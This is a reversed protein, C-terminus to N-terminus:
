NRYCNILEIKQTQIYRKLFVFLCVCFCSSMNLQQAVLFSFFIGESQVWNALFMLKPSHLGYQPIKKVRPINVGTFLQSLFSVATMRASKKDRYIVLSTM